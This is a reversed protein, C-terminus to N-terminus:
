SFSIESIELGGTLCAELELVLKQLNNLSFQVFCHIPQRAAMPLYDTYVRPNWDCNIKLTVKFPIKLKFSNSKLHNLLSFSNVLKGENVSHQQTSTDTKAQIAPAKSTFCFAFYLLTWYLFGFCSVITYFYKIFM